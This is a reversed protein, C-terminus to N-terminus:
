VDWWSCKASSLSDREIKRDSPLFHLIEGAAPQCRIAGLPDSRFPGACIFESRVTVARAANHVSGKWHTKRFIRANTKRFHLFLQGGLSFATPIRSLSPV